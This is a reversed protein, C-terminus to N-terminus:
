GFRVSWVEDSKVIRINVMRAVFKARVTLLYGFGHMVNVVKGSFKGGVQLLERQRDIEQLLNSRSLSAPALHIHCLGSLEPALSRM